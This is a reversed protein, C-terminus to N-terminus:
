LAGWAIWLAYAGLLCAVVAAVNTVFKPIPRELFEAIRAELRILLRNVPGNLPIQPVRTGVGGATKRPEISQARLAAIDTPFHIM